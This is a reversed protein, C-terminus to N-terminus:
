MSEGAKIAKKVIRGLGGSVDQSKIEELNTPKGVIVVGGMGAGIHPTCQYVYIGEKEFTHSVNKGLPSTFAEAGEPILDPMMEVNHTMMNDWSVTDGPEIKVVLPEFAMGKTTVTQDAAFVPNFSLLSLSLATAVLTKLKTM